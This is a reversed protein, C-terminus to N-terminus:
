ESIGLEENIDIDGFDEIQTEEFAKETIKYIYEKKIPCIKVM